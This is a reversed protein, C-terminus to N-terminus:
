LYDMLLFSIVEGLDDEEIITTDTLMDGKIPSEYGNSRLQCELEDLTWYIEKSQPHFKDGVVFEHAEGDVEIWSFGPVKEVGSEEMRRRMRSFDEWRGLGAYINALLVYCGGYKPALTILEQAAIEAIEINGHKRCAALLTAWIVAGPEMPMSEIVAKAEELFGSRGLLDILCGYHQIVPKIEYVRRMLNFHRIGEEVLGGHNCAILLGIFTVYNPKVDSCQMQLFLKLSDEAFGHIGFGVIMSTWHGVNKNPINEFVQFAYYISGSKSYMDILAAGLIGDLSFKHRTVYGHVRKGLGLLGLESIASIIAVLTREDPRLGSFRHASDTRGCQTYMHILSNQVFVDSAFPTKLVFCHIQQGEEFAGMQACSKLIFPFTFKDPPVPTSDCLMQYFLLFGEEPRNIQTHARILTNYLFSSSKITRDLVSLTYDINTSKPISSYLSHCCSLTIKSPISPNQHFFGTKISQAHIQQIERINTCLDLLSLLPLSQSSSM